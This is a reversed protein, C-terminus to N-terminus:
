EEAILEEIEEMAKDTYIGHTTYIIKGKEDLVFVYPDDKVDMKLTSKFPELEGKYVLIYPHLQVDINKKIQGEAANALNQNAGTLMAVFFAHINYPEEPILSKESSRLILNHVSADIWGQLKEQAKQSYALCLVSKKGKLSIPIISKIGDVNKCEMPPFVAGVQAMSPLAIFTYFVFSLVISRM